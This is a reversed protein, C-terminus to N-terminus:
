VYKNFLIELLDSQEENLVMPEFSEVVKYPYGDPHTSDPSVMYTSTDSKVEFIPFDM